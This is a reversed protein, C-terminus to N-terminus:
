KCLNKMWFRLDEIGRIVEVGAALRDHKDIISLPDYFIAPKGRETGIHATSTFPLSISAFAKDILRFASVEPDALNCNKYSDFKQKIQHYRPDATSNLKRKTKWVVDIGLETAVVIIDQIFKSVTKFTLYNNDLGLKVYESPRIPVIDFIVIAHSVLSPDIEGNDEFWIPGTVEVAGTVPSCSREILARQEDNWAYYRDWNMLAYGPPTPLYGKNTKATDNNTSYFYLVCKSGMASAQYSWIPRFFWGSNHFFYFKALENCNAVKMRYADVAQYLMAAYHWRGFLAYILALSFSILGWLIFQWFKSWTGLRPFPTSRYKIDVNYVDFTAKCDGCDHFIHNIYSKCPSKKCFWTIINRTNNKKDVEVNRRRLSSLYIYPKTIKEDVLVSRSEECVALLFRYAGYFYMLLVFGIFKVSCFFKNVRVGKSELVNVWDRPLAGVFWQCESVLASFIRYNLKRGACRLVMLQRVMLEEDVKVDTSLGMIYQGFSASKISLPTSCIVRNINAVEGGDDPLMFEANRRILQRLVSRNKRFLSKKFNKLFM